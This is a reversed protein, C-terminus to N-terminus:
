MTRVFKYQSVFNPEGQRRDYMNSYVYQMRSICCQFHPRLYKDTPERSYFAVIRGSLLRVQIGLRRPPFNPYSFRSCIATMSAGCLSCQLLDLFWNLHRDLFSFGSIRLIKCNMDLNTYSFRWRLRVSNPRSIHCAFSVPLQCQWGSGTVYDITSMESIILTLAKQNGSVAAIVVTFTAQSQLSFPVGM